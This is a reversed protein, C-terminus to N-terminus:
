LLKGFNRLIRLGAEGSKEPHFQTGYVNGSQVAATVPIGYDAAASIIGEDAPEAHFSHVFYVYPEEPLGAFLPESKAIRLSNWGMHPVVRDKPLPVVRGKLIGLGEFSGGELSEEFFLQMGLCIGLFPRGSAIFDKIFPILGTETLNRMCDAFAGVGPLVAGDAAKLIDADATIEADVGIREFAKQVSRLNGMGYDIVAVRPM